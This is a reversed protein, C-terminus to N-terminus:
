LKKKKKYHLVEDIEANLNQWYILSFNLHARIVVLVM